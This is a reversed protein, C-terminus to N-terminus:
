RSIRERYINRALRLLKERENMEPDDLVAELLLDLVRGLVPGRPIEAEEM